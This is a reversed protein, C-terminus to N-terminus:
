ADKGLESQARKIGKGNYKLQAGGPFPVTLETSAGLLTAFVDEAPHRARGRESELAFLNQTLADVLEPPIAGDKEDSWELAMEVVWSARDFDLELRKLKFEEEAHRKSWDDSWRIYFTLVGFLSAV